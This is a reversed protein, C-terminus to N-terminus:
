RGRRPPPEARRRHGRAVGLLPAVLAFMWLAARLNFDLLTFAVLIFAAWLFPIARPTPDLLGRRTVARRVFRLDDHLQQSETM